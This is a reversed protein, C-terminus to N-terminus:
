ARLVRPHQLDTSRYSTLERSIMLSVPDGTEPLFSSMHYCAQMPVGCIGFPVVASSHSHIVANVHPYMKLVESHICRESFGPPANPDVPSGDVIHYEILDRPSSITGPPAERTMIFIENKSPHRVSLHGYADRSSREDACKWVSPLPVSLIGHHHLIHCATIFTRYLEKLTASQPTSM